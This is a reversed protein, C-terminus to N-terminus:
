SDGIVEELIVKNLYLSAFVGHAQVTMVSMIRSWHHHAVLADMLLQSYM